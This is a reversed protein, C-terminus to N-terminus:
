AALEREFLRVLADLRRVAQEPKAGSALFHAVGDLAEILRLRLAEEAVAAALAIRAGAPGDVDIGHARRWAGLTPRDVFGAPLRNPTLANVGSKPAGAQRDGATGDPDSVCCDARTVADPPRAQDGAGPAGGSPPGTV